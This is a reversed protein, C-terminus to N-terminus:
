NIENIQKRINDDYNELTIMPFNIKKITKKGETYEMKKTIFNISKFYAGDHQYNGFAEEDYGILRLNQLNKYYKFKYTECYRGVGFCGSITLVQKTYNLNYGNSNTIPIYYGVGSDYFRSSLFVFLFNDNNENEIQPKTMIALDLIGDNDFDKDLRLTKEEFDKYIEFGKPLSYKNQATTNLGFLFIGLLLLKNTKM